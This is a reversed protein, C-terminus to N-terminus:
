VAKAQEADLAAILREHIGGFAGKSMIVVQDGSRLDGVLGAIIAEVSVGFRAELGRECLGQVLDEPM